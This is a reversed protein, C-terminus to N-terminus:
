KLRKRQLTRGRVENVLIKEEEPVCVYLNGVGDWCTWGVGHKVDRRREVEQEKLAAALRM